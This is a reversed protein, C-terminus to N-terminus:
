ICCCWHLILCELNLVERSLFKAKNKKHLVFWKGKCYPTRFDLGTWCISILHLLTCIFIYNSPLSSLPILTIVPLFLLWIFMLLHLFSHYLRCKLIVIHSSTGFYTANWSNYRFPLEFGPNLIGLNNWKIYFLNINLVAVVFNLSYSNSGLLTNDYRKIKLLNRIICM